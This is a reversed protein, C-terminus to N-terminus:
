VSPPTASQALLHSLFARLKAPKLPKHLVPLGSLHLAQITDPATDGTILAAPLPGFAAQLSAIAEIGTRGNKLRYDSLIVDPRRGLEILEQRVQEGDEGAALAVGWQDFVQVMAELIATDDDIFAVLAHELPMAIGRAPSHAQEEQTRPHCRSFRLHFCSGKDLQSQVHVQSGLLRALRAVIALGLGLGKDRHREPNSLQFYEEFVHTQFAEPIGKGTDRVELRLWNDQVRRVGVLVGGTDTYRLANSILNALIRELLVPDTFLWANGAHMRLRLGKASAMHSFQQELRDMVQRLPFCEPRSQVAGADLRSLDLLANLLSEMSSASAGIHEALRLTEGDTLRESLAEVLLTLAHLPQRLDHSAAALFRSKALNASEAQQKQARLEATAELIRQNEELRIAMRNIGQQLAGIEGPSDERIRESWEGQSIRAVARTIAQLPQSVVGSLRWALVLALGISIISMGAAALSVQSRALEVPARTMALVVYAFPQDPPPHADLYPDQEGPAPLTVPYTFFYLRNRRQVLPPTSGNPLPLPDAVGSLLIWERRDAVAVTQAALSGRELDMQRKVNPLNGTFLDFAIGEALRRAADTGRMTLNAEAKSISRHTFYAAFLGVAVLMPLLAVVLIRLRLNLTHSPNSIPPSAPL